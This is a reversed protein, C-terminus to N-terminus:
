PQKELVRAIAQKFGPNALLKLQEDVALKLHQDLQQRLEARYLRVYSELAARTMPALAHIREIARERASLEGSSEGIMMLQAQAAGIKEQSQLIRWLINPARLRLLLEGGTGPVLGIRGWGQMFWGTPGVFRSDCALALDFGMGVSAGDVAAVTPVPVGILERILDQYAGYVISRRQEAPMGVRSASGKLNGGACFAGNGTLVIGCTAENQASQKLASAIQRCEEPGLSNRQQPWDLVIIAASGRYEVLVGM